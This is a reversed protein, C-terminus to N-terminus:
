AWTEVKFKSGQVKSFSSGDHAFHRDHNGVHELIRFIGLRGFGKLFGAV